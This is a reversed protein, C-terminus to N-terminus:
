VVGTVVGREVRVGADLAQWATRVEPHANIEIDYGGLHLPLGAGARGVTWGWATYIPPLDHRGTALNACVLRYGDARYSDLTANILGTGVGRRRAAPHVAVADLWVLRRVMTATDVPLGPLHIAKGIALAIGTISDETEAVLGRAFSNNETPPALYLAATEPTLTDVTGALLELAAPLDDAALPRISLPGHSVSARARHDARRRSAKGM